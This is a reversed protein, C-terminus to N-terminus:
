LCVVKEPDHQLPFALPTLGSRGKPRGPVEIRVGRDALLRRVEELAQALSASRGRGASAVQGPAGAPHGLSARKGQRLDLNRTLVTGGKPLGYLKAKDLPQTGAHGHPSPFESLSTIRALNSQRGSTTAEDNRTCM